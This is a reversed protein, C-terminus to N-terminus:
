PLFDGKFKDMLMENLELFVHADELCRMVDTVARLCHGVAWM